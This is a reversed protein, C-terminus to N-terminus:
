GKKGPRTPVDEDVTVSSSLEGARDLPVRWHPEVAVRVCGCRRCWVVRDVVAHWDATGCVCVESLPVDPSM